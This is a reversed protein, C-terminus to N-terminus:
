NSTGLELSHNGSRNEATLDSCARAAEVSMPGIGGEQREGETGDAMGTGKDPPFRWSAPRVLM